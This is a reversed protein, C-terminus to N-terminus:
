DTIGSILFLNCLIFLAIFRCIVIFLVFPQFFIISSTICIRPSLTLVPFQMEHHFHSISSLRVIYSELYIGIKHLYHFFYEFFFGSFLNCHTGRLTHTDNTNEFLTYMTSTKGRSLSIENLGFIWVDVSNIWPTLATKPKTNVRYTHFWFNDLAVNGSAKTQKLFLYSVKATLILLSYGRSLTYRM